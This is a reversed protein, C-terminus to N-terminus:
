ERKRLFGVGGVLVATVGAFAVGWGVTAHLTVLLLFALGGAFLNTAYLISRTDPSHPHILLPFLLGSAAFLFGILALILVQSSAFIDLTALVGASAASLLAALILHARSLRTAIFGGLSAFFLPIILFVSFFVLSTHLFAATKYFLLYQLGFTCMGFLASLLLARTPIGRGENVKGLVLLFLALALGFFAYSSPPFPLTTIKHRFPRSDTTPDTAFAADM